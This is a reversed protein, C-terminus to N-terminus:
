FIRRRDIGVSDEIQEWVDGVIGQLQKQGGGLEIEKVLKPHTCSLSFDKAEITQKVKGWHQTEVLFKVCSSIDDIGYDYFIDFSVTRLKGTIKNKTVDAKATIGIKRKIKRVEKNHTQIKTMWVQHTSYYFPATGGSTITKKEFPGGGINAREQQIIFLASNTKKLSNNIIRLTEGVHKAKETKYSGKLEKVADASKAMAVAKTYEKELEEDTTLSDLSDLAYIFPKNSSCLNLINGQFEQTTESHLPENEEGYKPAKLRDLLEEGFLYPIDIALSEEGDDYILEYDDFRKDAVCEAFSTLMLMTKGSVSGGPLTVIRGLAFAGSPNDSSACNLLTVGSPILVSTDIPQREPIIKKSSKDIQDVLDNTKTRRSM